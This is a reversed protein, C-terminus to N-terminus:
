KDKGYRIERAKLYWEELSEFSIVGGGNDGIELSVGNVIDGCKSKLPSVYLEDVFGATHLKFFGLKNMEDM